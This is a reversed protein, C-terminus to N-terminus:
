WAQYVDITEMNQGHCTHIFNLCRGLIVFNPAENARHIRIYGTRYCAFFIELHDIRIIKKTDRSDVQNM